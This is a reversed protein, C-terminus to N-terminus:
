ELPISFDIFEKKVKNYIDEWEKTPKLTRVDYCEQFPKGIPPRKLHEEYTPIVKKVIENADASKLGVMAKFLEGCFKSELGTAHEKFKGGASRIGCNWSAGDVQNNIANVAIERLMMETVPGAVPNNTDCFLMNSNRAMALGSVNNAWIAERGCTGIYKLDYISSQFYEAGYVSTFLINAAIRTLVTGEPPGPVGGIFSHHYTWLHAGSRQVHAAETLLFNTTKLEAPASVPALDWKTFGSWPVLASITGIGTADSEVMAVPMGPRGARRCAQKVMVGEEFTAMAELATGARVPRGFLTELVGPVMMDVEKHQAVSQCIPIYLDESAPAGFPGGCFTVKDKPGRIKIHVRDRGDGLAIDTPLNRLGDKLEDESIKIIRKTDLCLVGLDLALEFAAKWFEDALDSSASIPNEPTCTGKLGHETLKEKVKGPVVRKDWEATDCAPGEFVRDLIDIIGLTM